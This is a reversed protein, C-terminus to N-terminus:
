RDLNVEEELSEEFLLSQAVILMVDAVTRSCVRVLQVAFFEVVVDQRCPRM